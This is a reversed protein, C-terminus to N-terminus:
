RLFSRLTQDSYDICSIKLFNGSFCNSYNVPSQVGRGSYVLSVDLTALELLAFLLNQVCVRLKRAHRGMYILGTENDTKIKWQM